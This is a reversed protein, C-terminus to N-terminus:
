AHVTEPRQHDEAEILSVFVDEMGPVVPEIREATIGAAALVRGVAATAAAADTCVVHLGAGFLATDRVEPLAAIAPLVQQPSPCRVDLITERRHRTKLETPTGLAIMRGRYIMAIRDCYEAEEMYHTTVFVTVGSEAMTYILDWFRRRSLPDVGSTPEDLFIIPPEHLVACALALRQKLGGSLVRTLSRRRDALGAMTVAWDRRAALRAGVLGYIGGYFNINEEVTLDEYLSFKQSMYGIHQKIQEAQRVVDFGAVTGSGASPRLLGCLMRITTSKGAGNPGLFGFIEGKAVEFRVRDVAVFRGFRRTLDQVAVATPRESLVPAAGPGPDPAAPDDRGSSRDLVSVFVDELTPVAERLDDFALGGAALHRRIAETTTAIDRCVVHVRDGFLHVRSDALAGQLVRHVQRARDSRVALIRGTMLGRIEATTGTAILRGHDILGVRHCREAEDLYATTLLIAVNQELLRYLIRWFDRRSIPDVGNTPEDLLLVRPTHVLACVLQLKQKMGGSLDGALRGTFPRMGSFDLLEAIRGARGQRPVGYLDAYFDINEAVTLDPYLGFRQSMYALHDRVATADAVVDVGAVRATGRTPAMIGALMRLTTTKGAGDPGVLGFIEGPAVALHLDEVATLAGFRRTLGDAAIVTAPTM